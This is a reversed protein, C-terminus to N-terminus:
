ICKLTQPTKHNNESNKNKITVYEPHINYTVNNMKTISTINKFTDLSEYVDIQIENLKLM